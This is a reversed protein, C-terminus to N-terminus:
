KRLRGVRRTLGLLGLALLGGTAPEPVVEFGAEPVLQFIREEDLTQPLYEGFGPGIEPFGNHSPSEDNNSAFQVFGRVILQDKGATNTMSATNLASTANFSTLYTGPTSFLGSPSTGSNIVFPSRVQTPAGGNVIKEWIINCEFLAFGGTGVTAGFPVSFTGNITPGFSGSNIIDFAGYFDIRLASASQSPSAVPDTQTVGAGSPFVLKAVTSSQTRGVGGKGITTGGPEFTIPNNFLNSPTSTNQIPQFLQQVTAGGPSGPNHTIHFYSDTTNLSATAGLTAGVPGIIALFVLADLLGRLRMSPNRMVSDESPIDRFL